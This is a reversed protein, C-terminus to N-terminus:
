AAITRNRGALVGSVLTGLLLALLVLLPPTWSGVADHLAGILVPGAAALLYGLCQAMGSLAGAQHHNSSRLGFLSLAFVIGGGIGLGISVSWLVALTPALLFGGVGTACLVSYAVALPRQDPLRHILAAAALSGVISVIQMVFQHWGAAAPGTGVAQEISPLFTILTYYVTSQLGMFATIQWAMATRWVPRAPAQGTDQGTAPAPAPARRIMRPLFVALGILALGAWIGLSLRWGDQATGAIPVALGAGLAAGTSSMASYLGTLRGVRDPHDRKVLVPLVVNLFAVAVGLGATGIWLAPAGFPASRIVISIALLALSGGLVREVGLSRAVAPAFPSIVAFAVLPVSILASATPSSLDLDARVDDLVPGVSTIGARLNAGMLLVGVLLLWARPGTRTPEAVVTDPRATM